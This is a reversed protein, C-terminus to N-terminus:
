GSEWGHQGVLPVFVCGGHDETRIRGEEKAVVTLTQSWRQGLPLVLRGGDRLQDLWPQAIQPAAATIIIRDYPARDPYGLTGDGVVVTVNSYGLDALIYRAREALPEFREVTYVEKALEALIAAQYGSGTGIELVREEGTLRLLDTMLAAMYPQSITQGSGIPIPMDEYAAYSEAVPVFRHRPIKEMAALLRQDSVGRRRIQYEVMQKRELYFDRVAM